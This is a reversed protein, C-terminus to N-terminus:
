LYNPEVPPALCSGATCGSGQAQLFMVAPPLDQKTGGGGGEQIVTHTLGQDPCKLKM